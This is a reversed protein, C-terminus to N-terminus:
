VLVTDIGLIAVAVIHLKTSILLAIAVGGVAVVMDKEGVAAGLDHGVVSGIGVGAIHHIDLVLALGGVMLRSGVVGGDMLGGGVVGGDVMSGGVVGRHMM